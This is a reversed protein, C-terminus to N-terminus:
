IGAAAALGSSRIPAESVTQWPRAPWWRDLPPPAAVDVPQGPRPLALRVGAREAAVLVREAPETWGHLALDFTAWHVPVLLGGQVRQHAAVAQEPGLHVDPWAQDYAGIEILTADFPGLRAGIAAFDPTMGSDGSVYLRRRGGLLAWGAWLTQDTGWPARGSFHRTPTCVLRVGAVDAEDWWDLETIHSPPVGWTELHAGVGLPTVWRPVHGALARVTSEGLHDYHDHTVLVADLPPLTAPALPADFFRRIGFRGPGARDALLVPDTLFRRGDLEVLVTAHGLWTLRLDDSAPGGVAPREVPIPSTPRRAAGGFLGAAITAPTLHNRIPLLNRFRGGAFQPSRRVRALREGVATRGLAGHFVRDAAADRLRALVRLVGPSGNPVNGLPQEALRDAM